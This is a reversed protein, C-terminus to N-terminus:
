STHEISHGSGGGTVMVEGRKDNSSAGASFYSNQNEIESEFPEFHTVSHERVSNGSSEAMLPITIAIAINWNSATKKTLM